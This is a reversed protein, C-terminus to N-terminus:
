VETIIQDTTLSGVTGSMEVTEIEGQIDEVTVCDAMFLDITARGEYKTDLLESIDLIDGYDLLSVGAVRLIARKSELDKAQAIDHAYDLWGTNAFVNVTLTFGRRFPIDFIDLSKYRLEAQGQSSPGASINLTIYPLAPKVARRSEVVSQKDWIVKTTAFGTAAVIFDFIAKEKTEDLRFQGM